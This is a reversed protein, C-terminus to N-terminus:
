LHCYQHHKDKKVNEWIQQIKAEVSRGGLPSVMITKHTRKAM